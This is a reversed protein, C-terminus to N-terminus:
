KTSIGKASIPERMVTATKEILPRVRELIMAFMEQPMHLYETFLNPTSRLVRHLSAYSGKTERALLWDHSRVERKRIKRPEEEQLLWCGLLLACCTYAEGDVDM